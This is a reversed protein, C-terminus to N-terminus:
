CPKDLLAQVDFRTIAADVDRSLRMTIKEPSGRLVVTQSRQFGCVAIYKDVVAVSINEGFPRELIDKVNIMECKFGQRAGGVECGFMIDADAEEVMKACVREFQACNNEITTQRAPPALMGQQMGFNFSAVRFM